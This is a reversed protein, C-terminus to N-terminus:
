RRIRCLVSLISASTACLVTPGPFVNPNVASKDNADLRIPKNRCTRGGTSSASNCTKQRLLEARLTRRYLLVAPLPLRTPTPWVPMGTLVACARVFGSCPPYCVFMCAHPPVGITQGAMANMGMHLIIYTGSMAGGVAQASGLSCCNDFLSVILYLM